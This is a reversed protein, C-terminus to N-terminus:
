SGASRRTVIRRLLYSCSAAVVGNPPPRGSQDPHRARQVSLRAVLLPSSRVDASAEQTKPATPVITAHMLLGSDGTGFDVDRLSRHARLAEDGRGSGERLYGTLGSALQVAEEYATSSLYGFRLRYGTM